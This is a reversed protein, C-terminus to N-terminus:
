LSTFQPGCIPSQHHAAPLSLFTVSALSVSWCPPGLFPNPDCPPCKRDELGPLAWLYPGRGLGPHELMGRVTSFGSEVCAFLCTQLATEMVQLLVIDGFSDGGGGFRLVGLKAVALM